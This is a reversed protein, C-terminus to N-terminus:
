ALINSDILCITTRSPQQGASLSIPGNVHLIHSPGATRQEYPLETKHSPSEINDKVSKTHLRVM